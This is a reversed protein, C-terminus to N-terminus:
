QKEGAQNVAATLPLSAVFGHNFMVLRLPKAIITRAGNIAQPARDLVEIEVGLLTNKNWEASGFVPLVKEFASKPMVGMANWTGSLNSGAPMGVLRLCFRNRDTTTCVDIGDESYTIRSKHEVAQLKFFEKSASCMLAGCDNKAVTSIEAFPLLFHKTQAVEARRHVATKRPALNLGDRFALATLRQAHVAFDRGKDETAKGVWAITNEVVEDSAGTAVAMTVDDLLLVSQMCTSVGEVPNCVFPRGVGQAYAAGSAAVAAVVALRIMARFMM